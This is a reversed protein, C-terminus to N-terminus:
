IAATWGSGVSQEMTLGTYESWKRSFFDDLGDPSATWIIEPLSEALTRFYLEDKRSAEVGTRLAASVKDLFAMALRGGSRWLAKARRRTATVRGAPDLAAYAALLAFAVPLAVWRFDYVGRVHGEQNKRDAAMRSM